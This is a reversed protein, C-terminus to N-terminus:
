RIIKKLLSSVFDRKVWACTGLILIYVAAVTWRVETHTYLINIGGTFCLMVFVLALVFRYDYVDGTNLKKVLLMHFILLFLYGALTTYAAANYGYRPIFVANLVFNLVGASVSAIAMGVTKKKYQEINVYLTYLFQCVCGMAVPPMVYKAALYKQGGMFLLLEPALLMIGLAIITFLTIYVKSVRRIEAIEGNSLKDGLWPAFASNLSTMLITVVHGCSYAVTYLANDAAGCIQTIMIRDLSNLLTLSLLHPIFPLCIKLVYPWVSTDIKKGRRAMLWLLVIGMLIPFSAHGLIRGTLKDRMSLVLIIATVVSGVATVLSVRVSAKYRYHYRENIQFFSVVAHFFCYILLLNIYAQSLAMKVTFFGPFFNIILAWVAASVATLALASYNFQDLRNRFDRKASILCSEMRMTVVIIAITSWSHYNSFGGLEEPTLLRTFIPTTIMAMGRVLMNCLVYWFGSKLAKTNNDM